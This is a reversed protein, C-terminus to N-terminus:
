DIVERTHAEFRPLDQGKHPRHPGRNAHPTPKGYNMSNPMQTNHLPPPLRQRRGLQTSNRHIFLKTPQTVKAPQSLHQAVTDASKFYTVTYCNPTKM